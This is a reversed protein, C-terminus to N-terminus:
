GEGGTDGGSETARPYEKYTRDREAFGDKRWEYTAIDEGSPCCMPDVDLYVQTHVLLARKAPEAFVTPEEDAFVNVWEGARGQRYVYAGVGKGDACASVNVVLDEAEGDTLDASTVQIPWADEVCPALGAKVDYSVKPDARLLSVIEVEGRAGPPSVPAGATPTEGDRTADPASPSPEDPEAEDPRPTVAPLPSAKAETGERATASEEIRVGDGAACGSLVFALPLLTVVVWAAPARLGRLGRPAAGSGAAM